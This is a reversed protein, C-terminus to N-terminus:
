AFWRVGLQDQLFSHVAFATPSPYNGAFYVDDGRQRIAYTEPNLKADPLDAATASETKGVNLTIGPADKGDTKLPLLVGSIKQIYKQLDAGAAQVPAPADAQVVITANPKGDQVFTLPAAVAFSPAASLLLTFLVKNM